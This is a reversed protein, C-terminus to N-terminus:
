GYRLAEVPHIKTARHAPYLSAVAGFFLAIFLSALVIQLNLETPAFFISSEGIELGMEYMYNFYNAVIIGLILSIIYAIVCIVVAESFILQKIKGRSFGLARLTGLETRRETVSMIMTNSVGIISVISIIAIIIYFWSSVTREMSELWSLSLEFRNDWGETEPVAERIKFELETFDFDTADEIIMNVVPYYYSDNKSDYQKFTRLMFELPMFGNYDRRNYDPSEALIGILEVDRVAALSEISINTDGAKYRQHSYWPVFEFSANVPMLDIKDGVSANRFYDYWLRYGMVIAPETRGVTDLHRGSHLDESFDYREYHANYGGPATGVLEYVEEYYGFGGEGYVRAYPQYISPNISYTTDLDRFHEDAAARIEDIESESFPIHRFMYIYGEKRSELESLLYSSLGASIAALVIFFAICIALGTVTLTSRLKRRTINKIVYRLLSIDKSGQERETKGPM